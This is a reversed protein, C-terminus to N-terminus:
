WPVSDEEEESGNEYGNEDVDVTTEDDPTSLQWVGRGVNEFRSDNSLHASVNNVPRQGGIQVGREVLRDHIEIRHLPGETALIEAISSRLDNDSGYHQGRVWSELNMQPSTQSTPRSPPPGGAREQSEFYRLSATVARLQEDIRQKELKLRDIAARLDRITSEHVM